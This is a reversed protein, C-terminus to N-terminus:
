SQEALKIQSVEAKKLAVNYQLVWRSERWAMCDSWAGFKILYRKSSYFIGPSGGNYTNFVCPFPTWWAPINTVTTGPIPNNASNLECVEWFYGYSPPFTVPPTATVTYKGSGINTTAINLLVYNPDMISKLQFSIDDLALDNGDGLGTEDLLIAMTLSTSGFPPSVIGQILLWDCAGTNTNVDITAPLNSPVLVNPPVSFRVGIKPTIDFTCQRFNKVNACFRYERGGRVPATQQWIIKWGSQCTKGNVVMFKSKGFGGKCAYHDNARWRPSISLASASNVINYQGPLTANAVTSANYTYQSTFGTNGTEFDGNQLLNRGPCCWEQVPNFVECPIRFILFEDHNFAAFPVYPYQPYKPRTDRECDYWMWKAAPAIGAIVSNWPPGGNPAGVFPNKWDSPQASAIASNIESITPFDDDGHNNRTPLVQWRSDGSHITIDGTFSGLFGQFVNDDSWACIYLYSGQSPQITPLDEGNSIESALHNTAQLRYPSFVQNVDGLWISYSNDCTFHGTINAM